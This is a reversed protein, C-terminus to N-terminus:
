IWVTPESDRPVPMVQEYPIMDDGGFDANVAAEGSVIGGSLGVYIYFVLAAVAVAAQLGLSAGSGRGALQFEREMMDDRPTRGSRDGTTGNANANNASRNGFYGDSRGTYKIDRGDSPGKGTNSSVVSVERRKSFAPQDRYRSEDDPLPRKVVSPKAPSSTPPIASGFNSGDRSSGNQPSNSSSSSSTSVTPANGAERQRMLEYFDRSLTDGGSTAGADDGANNSTGGDTLDGIGDDFYDDDEPGFLKSYLCSGRFSHTRSDSLPTLSSRYLSRTPTQFASSPITLELCFVSFFFVEPLYFTKTM